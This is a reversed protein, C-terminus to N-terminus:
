CGGCHDLVRGLHGWQGLNRGNLTEVRVVKWLLTVTTPSNYCRMARSMKKKKEKIAAGAGAVMVDRVERLEKRKLKEVADQIPYYKDEVRDISVLKQSVIKM